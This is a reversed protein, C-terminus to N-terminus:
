FNQKAVEFKKKLFYDSQDLHLELTVGHMSLYLPTEMKAKKLKLKETLISRNCWFNARVFDMYSM